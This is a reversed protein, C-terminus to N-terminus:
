RLAEIVSFRGAPYVARPRFGAAALLRHFAGVTRECGGPGRMMNLDSMVAARHEDSGSPFQPMIREILLLKGGQPLATHCNRLILTSREDNWDHIVSKLVIIDAIAPVAEFFDGAIFCVRDSVGAEALLRMAAPECRPLDFVAAELRPHRQAVAAAFEGAGGGVDLIRGVGSFDCARLVEPTVTRTLDVMAANFIAVNEPSRAMLEFSSAAGALEAATRGSMVTDLLGSWSKAIMEGEFIAWAKFSNESAGDLAAGVNTLTYRVGDQRECLGITCLATLLRALSDRHAKTAAALEDASRPGDRLREAIGLRAAAYIVATIRQSQILDLLTLAAAPTSM